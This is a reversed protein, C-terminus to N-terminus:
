TEPLHAIKKITWAVENLSVGDSCDHTKLFSLHFLIIIWKSIELLVYYHKENKVIIEIGSLSFLICNPFNMKSNWIKM